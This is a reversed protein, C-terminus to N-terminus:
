GTSDCHVAIYRAAAVWTTEGAVEGVKFAACASSTRPNPPRSPAGMAAAVSTVCSPATTM